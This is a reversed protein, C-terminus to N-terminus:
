GKEQSLSFMNIKENLREENKVSIVQVEEFKNTDYVNLVEDATFILAQSSTDDFIVEVVSKSSIKKTMMMEKTFSDYFCILGGVTGFLIKRKVKSVAM